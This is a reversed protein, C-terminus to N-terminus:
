PIDEYQRVYEKESNTYTKIQSRDAKVMGLEETAVKYVYDLDPRFSKISSELGDNENKLVDLDKELKEIKKLDTIVKADISLYNYGLYLVVALAVILLSLYISHMQVSVEKIRKKDLEEVYKRRVADIKKPRYVYKKGVEYTPSYKRAATGSIYSASLNRNHMRRVKSEM